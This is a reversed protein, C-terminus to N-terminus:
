FPIIVMVHTREISFLKSNQIEKKYRLELVKLYLAYKLTDYEHLIYDVILIVESLDM